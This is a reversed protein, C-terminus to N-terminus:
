YRSFLFEDCLGLEYLYEPTLYKFKVKAGPTPMIGWLLLYRPTEFRVLGIAELADRVCSRLDDFVAAEADVLDDDDVILADDELGAIPLVGKEEGVVYLPELDDFLPDEHDEIQAVAKIVLRALADLEADSLETKAKRMVTVLASASHYAIRRAAIAAEIHAELM